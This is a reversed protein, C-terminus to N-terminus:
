CFLKSIELIIFFLIGNMKDIRLWGRNRRGTREIYERLSRVTRRIEWFRKKAGVYLLVAFFLAIGLKMWCNRYLTKPYEVRGLLVWAMCMIVSYSPNLRRRFCYIRKKWSSLNQFYVVAWINWITNLLCLVVFYYLRKIDLWVVSNKLSFGSNIFMISVRYDLVM